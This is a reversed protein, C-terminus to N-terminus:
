GSAHKHLISSIYSQYALGERAALRKLINLDSNSLRINVRSEKKLYSNAAKKALQIEQEINESRVLEGKDYAELIDKEYEDFEM